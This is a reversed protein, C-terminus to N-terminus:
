KCIERIRDAAAIVDAADKAADRHAEVIRLVQGYDNKEAAEKVGNLAAPVAGLEEVNANRGPGAATIESDITWSSLSDYSQVVGDAGIVYNTPYSYVGYRTPTVGAPDIAVPFDYGNSSMLAEVAERSDYALAIFQVGRSQYQ